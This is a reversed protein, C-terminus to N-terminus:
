RTRWRRRLPELHQTPVLLGSRGLAGARARLAEFLRVSADERGAAYGFDLLAADDITQTEETERNRWIERIDRGRDWIGACAVIQRDEELVIFDPWGYPAAERESVPPPPSALQQLLFPVDYPRFLDAGEHTRNILAVCAELDDTQAQRLGPHPSVDVLPGLRLVHTPIGPMANATEDTEETKLGAADPVRSRLWDVANLNQDRFHYYAGTFEPEGAPGAYLLQSYGKGRASGRVRQAMRFSVFMRQGGVVSERISRQMSALAVGRDALMVIYAREQLRLQAFPDPSREVTVDWDGIAESSDAFLDVLRDTDDRTAIYSHLTGYTLREVNEIARAIREVPRPDDLWLEITLRSVRAALARELWGSEWGAERARQELDAPLPPELPWPEATVSSPSAPRDRDPM